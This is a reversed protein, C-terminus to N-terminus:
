VLNWGFTRHILIIVMNTSLSILMQIKVCHMTFHRCPVMSGVTCLATRGKSLLYWNCIAGQKSTLGHTWRGETSTVTEKLRHLDEMHQWLRQSNRHAATRHSQFLRRPTVWWRHSKINRSEDEYTESGQPPTTIFVDRKPSLTGSDKVRQENPVQTDRHWNKDIALCLKGSTPLGLHKVKLATLLIWWSDQWQTSGEWFLLIGTESWWM